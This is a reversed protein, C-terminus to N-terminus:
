NSETGGAGVSLRTTTGTARDRLFVDPVYNGDDPVIDWAMSDFVVYRGDGSIAHATGENGGSSPMGWLNQSVHDILGRFPTLPPGSQAVLGSSSALGFFAICSLIALRRM